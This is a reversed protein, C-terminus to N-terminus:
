KDFYAKVLGVRTETGTKEYLQKMYRYLMRESIRLKDAINKMSEESTLISRLVDCERPTLEHQKTYALFHEKDFEDCKKDANDENSETSNREKIIVNNSDYDNEFLIWDGLAKYPSEKVVYYVVVAFFLALMLSSYFTKGKFCRIFIESVFGEMVFLIRGFSAWLEPNKTYPALHWFKINMYVIIFGAVMYFICLRATMHDPMYVGSFGIGLMILLSTDLYKHKKFDAFFGAIFHGLIMFLRPFTYMDVNGAEWATTWTIEMMCGFVDAFIVIFLLGIIRNRVESNWSPTDEEYPLMEEFMWDAPPFLMLYTVVVFGLILIVIFVVTDNSSEPILMQFLVSLIQGSMAVRGVYRTRGFTAAIYYYVMGGLYGLSINIVFIIVAHGPVFLMFLMCAMYVVNFIMLVAKRAAISKFLKRSFYFLLFGIGLIFVGGYQIETSYGNYASTLQQTMSFEYAYVTLFIIYFYLQKASSM